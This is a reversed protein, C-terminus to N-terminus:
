ESVIFCANSLMQSVKPPLYQGCITQGTKLGPTKRPIALPVPPYIRFTEDLVATMYKLQQVSILNIEDENTFATRIEEALKAYVIPHTALLYTVASLTTATTESGAALLLNSNDLIEDDSM